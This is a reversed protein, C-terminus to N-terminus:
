FLMSTSSYFVFCCKTKVNQLRELRSSNIHFLLPFYALAHVPLDMSPMLTSCISETEAGLIQSLSTKIPLFWEYFYQHQKGSRFKHGSCVKPAPEVGIGVVGLPLRVGLHESMGLILISFSVVDIGVDSTIPDWPRLFGEWAVSHTGEQRFKHGSCVRHTSGAGIGVVDLPLWGPARVCGTDCSSLFVPDCTCPNVPACTTLLGLLVPYYLFSSKWSISVGFLVPARVCELDCNLGCSREWCGAYSPDM